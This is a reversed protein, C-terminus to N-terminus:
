GFHRVFVIVTPRQRWYASLATEKGDEDRLIADPAPQGVALGPGFRELDIEDDPMTLPEKSLPSLKHATISAAWAASGLYMRPTTVSFTAFPHCTAGTIPYTAPM